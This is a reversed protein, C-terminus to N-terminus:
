TDNAIDDEVQKTNINVTTSTREAKFVIKVRNNLDIRDSYNDTGGAM